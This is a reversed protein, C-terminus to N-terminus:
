GIESNGTGGSCKLFAFRPSPEPCFTLKLIRIRNIVAKFLEDMEERPRLEVKMGMGLTIM